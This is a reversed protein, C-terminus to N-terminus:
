VESDRDAVTIVNEPDVDEVVIKLRRHTTKTRGLIVTRDDHSAYTTDPNALVEDVEQATIGRQAMRRM